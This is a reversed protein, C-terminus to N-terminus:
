VAAVQTDRGVAEAPEPMRRRARTGRMRIPDDFIEIAELGNARFWRFVEPYLYKFQYRPTYWDFTDLWRWRWDPHMSIPAAIRLLGGVLPLRYVYYLPVAVISAALMLPLPLRTTVRRIADSFRHAPGYRAYVYIAVGGGERVAAVMCGFAREPDPTHHLVGISFAKDFTGDRFPMRFVDAQVIHVNPRRGISAYAADVAATLDIGVVEGGADAVVEAYRGSGVGVDLVRRGRYDAATWGTAAHLAAASIGSGNQSDLQTHRFTQWQFGFSSAYAGGPVFRPVGGTIPYTTTCTRCTLLGTEVEGGDEHTASLTLEDRCAPCVLFTLAHLKM